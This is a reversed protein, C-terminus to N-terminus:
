EKEQNWYGKQLSCFRVLGPRLKQSKKGFRYGLWKMGSQWILKPLLWLATKALYVATKKVLKM